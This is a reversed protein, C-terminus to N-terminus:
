LGLLIKLWIPVMNNDLLYHIMYSLIGFFMLIDLVGYLFFGTKISLNCCSTKGKDFKYARSRVSPRMANQLDALNIAQDVKTFNDKDAM